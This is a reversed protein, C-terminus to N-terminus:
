KGAMVPRGRHQRASVVLASTVRNVALILLITGTSVALESGFHHGAVDLAVRIVILGFWIAIGAWGTRSELLRPDAPSPRFVAIRGMMTGSIVALLASLGLIAADVPKVGTTERALSVVGLVGLILPLKLMRGLDVPRWRLQRSSSYAIVLLGIVIDTLTSSTM